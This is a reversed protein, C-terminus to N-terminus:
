WHHKCHTGSFRAIHYTICDYVKLIKLRNLSDNRTYEYSDKEKELQMQKLKMAVKPDFIGLTM